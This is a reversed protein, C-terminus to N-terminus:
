HEAALAKLEDFPVEFPTFRDVDLIWQGSDPVGRPEFRLRRFLDGVIGNRSTPVFKGIVSRAGARKAEQVIRNCIAEEVKRNLVRCSMLLTDIEWEMPRVICVVVAIIGNDGFRDRLSIQLTFHDHSGEFTTVQNETYRPTTVNFQNTKNILQTVRKRTMATFPAFEIRMELSRLFEDLNRTTQLLRTRDANGKYQEARALDDATFAVSEFYGAAFILRGFLSPDSGLEPVGVEPLAERVLAREAPNDDLLVMADLGLDLQQAIREINTAKDDWNAMFVAIDDEKLVMGPHSRFAQRAVAEDNKSCVTLVVGRRRLDAVATQVARFAEGRPDGQNLAIGEIGDDGIVGGWLTNDLDLVLCKKSKGRMAGLIRAVYDAYMPLAKQAFPLRALYWYRDDYWNELGICQALWEVDVLVDGRATVDPVLLSNFRALSARLTGPTGIDLSGLLLEPPAPLTQVLCMTGGHTRFAERIASLEALAADHDWVPWKSNDTSRFPLGRYDLALLIADPKASNINSAPDMAEQMVQGFGSISIELSVGYRLASAELLPKLFDTTSNSVLGLRFTSLSPSPRQARMANLTRALSTAENLGLFQTALSRLKPGWDADAGLEITRLRSRFDASLRPLWPLDTLNTAASPM